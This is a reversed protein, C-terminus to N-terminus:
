KKRIVQLLLLFAVAGVTAVVLSGLIGDGASIGLISFLVGGLVAGFVGIIIYGIVSSGGGKVLRGALWGAALGVLMYVLVTM